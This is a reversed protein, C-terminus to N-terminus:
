LLKLRRLNADLQEFQRRVVEGMDKGISHFTNTPPNYTLCNSVMLELDSRLAQVAASIGGTNATYERNRM